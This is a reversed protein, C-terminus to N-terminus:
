GKAQKSQRAALEQLATNMQQVWGGLETTLVNEAKTVLDDFDREDARRADWDRQLAALQSASQNYVVVTNDVQLYGLYSLAGGSMATTLGIWVEAGAAALVAGAAGAAVGVFQLVNRRRDLTRIRGHYYALQDGVRLRLYRDADLPSLGDDDRAAGYMDPPLPGAYPSLPGGSAETQVLRAEIAELRGALVHQRSAPEAAAYIGTVTRYRYIEAKVSEAAARLLVWRKGAARRNALAILVAVLVPAVVVAWHLLEGGLADHLLALLTAVIGLLLIAAQTREFASRLSGALADYTAFLKWAEKLAPADTVEWAIQRALQGAEGEFPRVDGRREAADAIEDAAGGTGKIAFVPWGRRVAHLVEARAVAGGGAVVVAVRASGAIAAAAGFLLETEGGWEDSEALLFHTHNPELAAREGAPEGPAAVRGAPAVGVLTAIAAPRERRARGVLAMVGADTGGDVVAAGTTAAARAVAEGVVAEAAVLAGGALEDAGGCVVIVPVDAPLGAAHVLDSADDGSVVVARRGGEFSVEDAM